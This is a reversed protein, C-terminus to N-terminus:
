LITQTLEEGTLAFYLNQLQHVHYLHIDFTYKENSLFVTWDGGFQRICWNKQRLGHSEWKFGFELLIDETLKMPRYNESERISLLHLDEFDIINKVWEESPEVPEDFVRYEVINGIRLENAKMFNARCSLNWSGFRM